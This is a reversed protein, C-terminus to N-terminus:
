EDIYDTLEPWRNEMQTRTFCIREIRGCLWEDLYFLAIYILRRLVGVM